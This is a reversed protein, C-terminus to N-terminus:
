VSELPTHITEPLLRYWEPDPRREDFGEPSVLPAELPRFQQCRANACWYRIVGDRPEWVESEAPEQCIPCRM